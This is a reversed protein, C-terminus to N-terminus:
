RKLCTWPNHSSLIFSFLGCSTEEISNIEVQGGRSDTMSCDTSRPMDSVDIISTRPYNGRVGKSNTGFTPDPDDSFQHRGTCGDQSSYECEQESDRQHATAGFGNDLHGLLTLM